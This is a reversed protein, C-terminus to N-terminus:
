AVHAIQGLLENIESDSAVSCDEVFDDWATAANELPHRFPLLFKTLNSYTLLILLNNRIEIGHKCFREACQNPDKCSRDCSLIASQCSKLINNYNFIINTLIPYIVFLRGSIKVIEVAKNLNNIFKKTKEDIDIAIVTM